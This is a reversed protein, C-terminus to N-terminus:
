YEEEINTVSQDNVCYYLNDRIKEFHRNHEAHIRIYNHLTMTAIVIKVQTTFLYSPM